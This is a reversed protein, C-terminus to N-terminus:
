ASRRGSRSRRVVLAALTVIIAVPVVTWVWDVTYTVWDPGNVCHSWSSTVRDDFSSGGSACLENAGSLHQSFLAFSLAFPLTGAIGATKEIWTLRRSLSLLVSGLVFLVPTVVSVLTIWYAGFGPRGPEGGPIVVVRLASLGALGLVALAVLEPAVTRANRIGAIPGRRRAVASGPAGAHMGPFIGHPEPPVPEM